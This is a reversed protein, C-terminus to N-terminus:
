MALLLWRLFRGRSGIYSLLQDSWFGKKKLDAPRYITLGSWLARALCVIICATICHLLVTTLTRCSLICLM